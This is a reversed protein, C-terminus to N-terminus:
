RCRGGIRRWCICWWRLRGLARRKWFGLSIRCARSSGRRSASRMISKCRGGVRCGCGSRPLKNSALRACRRWCILPSWNRLALGGKAFNVCHTKRGFDRCGCVGGARLLQELAERDVFRGIDVELAKEALLRASEESPQAPVRSEDITLQDYDLSTVLEVREATRNWALSTSETVRDLLWEAQIPGAAM